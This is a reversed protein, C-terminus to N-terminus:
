AQFFNSVSSNDMCIFALFFVVSITRLTSDMEM